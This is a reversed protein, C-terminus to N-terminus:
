LGHTYTHIYMFLNIVTYVLMRELWFSRIYTSSKGTVTCYFGKALFFSQHIVVIQWSKQWNEEQALRAEGLVRVVSFIKVM